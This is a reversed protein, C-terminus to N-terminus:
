SRQQIEYDLKNTIDSRSRKNLISSATTRPIGMERAKTSIGIGNEKVALYLDIVQEKSLINIEGNETRKKMRGEKHAHLINTSRDVWELNDVCNNAKDCDIHNVQPLGLPNGLFTEAVSRHIYGRKSSDVGLHFTFYGAGQNSLILPKGSMKTVNGLNSVMRPIDVGNYKAQKWIEEM